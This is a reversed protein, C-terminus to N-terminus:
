DVLVVQSSDSFSKFDIMLQKFWIHISEVRSSVSKSKVETRSLMAGAASSSETLVESCAM